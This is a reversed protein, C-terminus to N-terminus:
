QVRILLFYGVPQKWKNHLGRVLFVIARNAIFATKGLYGFDECGEVEDRSPNYSVGEKITMEDLVVACVKSPASFNAVKM